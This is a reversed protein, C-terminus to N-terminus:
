SLREQPQEVNLRVAVLAVGVIFWFLVAVEHDGFNWEFLGNVHFGVFAAFSGVVVGNTLWDEGSNKISRYLMLFIKVFMAMAAAFGIIGLTVLLHIMNNHLHGGEGKPEIPTTYTVYYKKLDIDGFGVFPRDLFMQWGTVIMNIRSHNSKDTPDIISTARMKLDAPAAIIFVAILLIVALLAKRFKLIGISIIGALFGLWSSRTQTLILGAFLPVGAIVVGFKWQKPVASDFVLPLILLLTIMKLGSETLFYQFISLRLLKGESMSLSFLEILSLTSSLVVFIILAQRLKEKSNFSLVVCYVITMLFLRKANVFSHIPELSFISALLEGAAYALFFIELGTKPIEKNYVLYALLLAISIGMAISSVAVSFTVSCITVLTFGYLANVLFTARTTQLNTEM